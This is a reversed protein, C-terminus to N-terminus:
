HTIIHATSTTMDENLWSFKIDYYPYTDHDRMYSPYCSWLGLSHQWFITNTWETSPQHHCGLIEQTQARAKHDTLLGRSSRTVITSTQHPTSSPTSRHITYWWWMIIPNHYNTTKSNVSRRTLSMQLCVRESTTFTTIIATSFHSKVQVVSRHHISSLCINIMTKRRMSSTIYYKQTEDRLTGHLPIRNWYGM